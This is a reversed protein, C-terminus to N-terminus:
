DSLFDSRKRLLPDIDFYRVIFLNDGKQSKGWLRDTDLAPVPGTGTYRRWLKLTVPDGNVPTLTIEYAPDSSEIESKERETIDFAWNEFPVRIFYTIYRRIKEKDAEEIDKGNVSLIFDDGKRLLMFSSSTDSRNVFGVSKVSSPLSNFIVFNQWYLPNTNFAVSIDGDYGPVYVIFPLSRENKKMINGYVNSQTKYVMFSRLLRRNNYVSVKVAEIGKLSIEDRFLEPSVPSKISIENLIRIIFLISGKRAEEAGNVMWEGGDNKELAVSGRESGIVVRTIESGEPVAFVTESRGFPRHERALFLLLVLAALGTIISLIMKRSM